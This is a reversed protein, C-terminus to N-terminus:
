RRDGPPEKSDPKSTGSPRGATGGHSSAAAQSSLLFRTGQDLHVSKGTSTMVSGTAADAAGGSLSLGRLGFVGTSSGSLM